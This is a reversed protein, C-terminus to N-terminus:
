KGYEVGELAEGDVYTIGQEIDVDYGAQTLCVAVEGQTHESPNCEEIAADLGSSEGDGATTTTPNQGTAESTTESTAPSNDGKTTTTVTNNVRTEEIKSEASNGDGNINTVTKNGASDLAKELVKGTTHIALGGVTATLLGPVVRSITANQSKAVDAAYDFYGMGMDGDKKDREAMAKMADAMAVLALQEPPLKAMAQYKAAEAQQKSQYMQSKATARAQEILLADGSEIKPGACASLAFLALLCASAIKM